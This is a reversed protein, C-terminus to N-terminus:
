WQIVMPGNRQPNFGSKARPPSRLAPIFIWSTQLVTGIQHPLRQEELSSPAYEYLLAKSIRPMKGELFKICNRSEPQRGFHCYAATEQYKPEQLALSQAIAGPRCDSEIKLFNTVEDM